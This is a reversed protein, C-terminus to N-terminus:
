FNGGAAAITCLLVNLLGGGWSASIGLLSDVSVTVGVPFAAGRGSGNPHVLNPPACHGLIWLDIATGLVNALVSHRRVNHCASTCYYGLFNEVM